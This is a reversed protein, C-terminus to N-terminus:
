QERRLTRDRFRLAVAALNLAVVVVTGLSLVPRWWTAPLAVSGALLGVLAYNCIGAWHGVASYARAPGGVAKSRRVTAVLYPISSCAIAVPVIASLLGVAVGTSLAVLVFAVDAGSDLLVGYTSAGGARRALPGDVFDSTTALAFVVVPTWGGGPLACAFAAALGLRLV